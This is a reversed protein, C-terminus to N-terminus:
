KNIPTYIIYPTRFSTEPNADAVLCIRFSRTSSSGLYAPGTVRDVGQLCAQFFFCQFQLLSHSFENWSKRSGLDLYAFGSVKQVPFCCCMSGWYAPGCGSSMGPVSFSPWLARFSNARVCIRLGWRRSLLLVNLWLLYLGPIPSHLSM